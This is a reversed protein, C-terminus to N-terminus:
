SNDIQMLVLVVVGFTSHIFPQRARRPFHKYLHMFLVCISTIDRHSTVLWINQQYMEILPSDQFNKQNPVNMSWCEESSFTLNPIRVGIVRM